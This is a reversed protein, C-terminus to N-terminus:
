PIDTSAFIEHFISLSNKETIRYKVHFSYNKEFIQHIITAKFASKLSFFIFLCQYNQQYQDQSFM